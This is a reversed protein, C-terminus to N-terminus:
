PWQYGPFYDTKISTQSIALEQYLMKEFFQVMPKPGSIYFLPKQVDSIHGVLVAKTIRYPEVFYIIKFNHSKSALDELEKQYPFQLNHNAYLLTLNLPLSRHELDLLISRFPTIGIGGAILVFEHNPNDIIFNGYPGEATISEGIKLEQLAKKFTSTREFGFRTTLMVKKEFPASAITFYRKIGREDPNPHPLTYLLFQGAQWPFPKKPEFLFSLVNDTEQKKAILAVKM